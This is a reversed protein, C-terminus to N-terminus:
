NLDEPEDPRLEGSGVIKRTLYGSDRLYGIIQILVEYVPKSQPLFVEGLIPVNAKEHDPLNGEHAYLRTVATLIAACFDSLPDKESDNHKEWGGVDAEEILTVIAKTHLDQAFFHKSEGKITIELDNHNITIEM